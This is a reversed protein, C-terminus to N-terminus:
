ESSAGEALCGKIVVATIDDEVPYGERFVTLSNLLEDLIQQASKHAHYRIIKRVREKGFLGKKASRTEWIGDTGLLLVLGDTMLETGSSYNADAIIGLSPGGEKLERFADTGPNYLLAPDHGARVWTMMSTAVDYGLYFLTVFNGTEGVDRCLLKNVDQIIESYNGGLECRTRIMARVSTMLLASSIGHGVVDGVVIDVGFDDQGRSIFDYYDGGTEDCPISVAAIALGQVCPPNDPLLSKQVAGALDLSKRLREKERLGGAMRNISECTYGVEDTSHIPIWIDLKGEQIDKLAAVIVRFPNALSISVLMALMLGTGIFVLANITLASSFLNVVELSSLETTALVRHMGSAMLLSVVCPVFGTIIFLVMLRTIILTRPVGSIAFVGGKPFFRAMFYRQLIAEVLFFALSCTIVGIILCQAATRVVLFVPAGDQSLIMPFFIAAALWALLNIGMYFYPTTLLRKRAKVLLFAPAETVEKYSFCQRVPKEFFLTAVVCLSFVVPDFFMGVSYVREWLDPLLREMIDGQVLNVMFVGLFNALLNALLPLNKEIQTKM